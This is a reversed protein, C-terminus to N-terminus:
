MYDVGLLVGRRSAKNNNNSLSTKDFSAYKESNFVSIEVIDLLAITKESKNRLLACKGGKSDEYSLNYCM